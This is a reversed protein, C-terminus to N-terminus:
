SDRTQSSVWWAIDTIKNKENRSTYKLVFSQPQAINERLSVLVDGNDKLMALLKYNSSTVLKVITDTM